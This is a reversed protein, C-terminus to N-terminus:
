ILDDITSSSNRFGLSPPLDLALLSPWM